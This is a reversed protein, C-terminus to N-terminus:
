AKMNNNITADAKEAMPKLERDKFTVYDDRMGVPISLWWKKLFEMGNTAAARGSDMFQRQAEDDRQKVRDLLSERPEGVKMRLGEEVLGIARDRTYETIAKSDKFLAGENVTFNLTVKLHKHQYDGTSVRREYTVEGGTIQTM